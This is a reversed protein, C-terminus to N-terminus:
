PTGILGQRLVEVRSPQQTDRQLDVQRRVIVDGQSVRAVVRLHRTTWGAQAPALVGNRRLDDRTLRGQKDRIALLRRAIGPQPFLATLVPKPATNLNVRSEGPLAVLVQALVAMTDNDMELDALQVIAGGKRIQAAIQSSLGPDLDVEALVRALIALWDRQPAALMNVNILGGLDIVDVALTGGPIALTDQRTNFWAEDWHDVDPATRGDLGFTAQTALIAGEAIHIAQVMAKQDIAGGQHIEQRTVLGLILTAGIAVTALVSLFAIGQDAKRMPFPWPFSFLAPAQGEM